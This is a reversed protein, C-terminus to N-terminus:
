IHGEKVSKFKRMFSNEVGKINQKERMLEASSKLNSAKKQSNIIM